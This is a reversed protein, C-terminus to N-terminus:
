VKKICFDLIQVSKDDYSVYLIVYVTLLNLDNLCFEYDLVGASKIQLCTKWKYYSVVKQWFRQSISQMHCFSKM